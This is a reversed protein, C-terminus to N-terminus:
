ANKIKTMYNNVKVAWTTTGTAVYKDQMLEPTNLGLEIYNHALNAIYGEIGEELTDYKGYTGGSYCTPKFRQGGVNNCKTVKESCTWTCGTEHLTIAVALYPDVGYEISYKAFLHGTGTLSSHLSKDLQNALEDMTMGDFVIPNKAEEILAAIENSEAVESIPQDVVKEIAPKNMKRYDVFNLIAVIIVLISLLCTNIIFDYKKM